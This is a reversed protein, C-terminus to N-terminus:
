NFTASFALTVSGFKMATSVGALDIPAGAFTFRLATGLAWNGGAGTWWEKGAALVLHGGTRTRLQGGSRGEYIWAPGLSATLFLNYPMFYYSVGAGLTLATTTLSLGADKVGDVRRTSSRYRGYGLNAHVILNGVARGGVALEFTGSLGSTQVSSVHGGSVQERYYNRGAGPGVNLRLFFGDHERAGPVGELLSPDSVPREAYGPSAFYSAEPGHEEVPLESAYPSMGEAAAAEDPTAAETEGGSAAAETEGASSPDSQSVGEDNADAARTGADREQARGDGPASLTLAAIVGWVGAHAWRAARRVRDLSVIKQAGVSTAIMAGHHEM